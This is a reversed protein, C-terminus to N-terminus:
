PVLKTYVNALVRLHKAEEAILKDVSIKDSIDASSTKIQVYFIISDKEFSMALELADKVDKVEAVLKEVSNDGKNFIHLDAMMKLYQDMESNPDFVTPKEKDPLADLMSQFLAKHAVEEKALHTFLNSVQSHAQFKSAATEYFKLGNEEISIAIKIAEVANFPYIM